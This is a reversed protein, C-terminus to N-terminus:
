NWGFPILRPYGGLQGIAIFSAQPASYSTSAPRCNTAGAVLKGVWASRIGSM